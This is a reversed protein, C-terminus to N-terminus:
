NQTLHGEISVQKLSNPARMMDIATAVLFHHVITSRPRHFGASTLRPTPGPPDSRCAAEFAQIYADALATGNRLRIRTGYAVGCVITMDPRIFNRCRWVCHSSICQSRYYLQSTRSLCCTCSFLQFTIFYPAPHPRRSWRPLVAACYESSHPLRLRRPGFSICRIIWICLSLRVRAPSWYVCFCISFPALSPHVPRHPM